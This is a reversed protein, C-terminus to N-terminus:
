SSGVNTILAKYGDMWGGVWGGHRLILGRGNDEVVGEGVVRSSVELIPELVGPGLGPVLAVLVVFSAGEGKHGDVDDPSLEWFVDFVWGINGGAGVWRSEANTGGSVHECRVGVTGTSSYHGDVPFFRGPV